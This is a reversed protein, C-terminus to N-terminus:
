RLYVVKSVQDKGGSSLKALYVGSALNGPNWTFHHAGATASGQFIQAVQNGQLDYIALDTIAAHGLTFNLSLTANFPNPCAKLLAHTLPTLPNEEVGLVLWLHFTISQAASPQGTPQVIVTIWGDNTTDFPTIDVLISDLGFPQAIFEVTDTFPSYCITDICYVALWSMPAQSRNIIAQMTIPNATLNNVESYFATTQNLTGQLETVPALYNFTQAVAVSTMVTVLILIFLAQKM